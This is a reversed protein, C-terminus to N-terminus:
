RNYRSPPIVESCVCKGPGGHPCPGLGSTYPHLAVNSDFDAPVEYHESRRGDGSSVRLSFAGIVSVLAPNQASQRDIAAPGQGACASVACLAGILAATRLLRRNRM